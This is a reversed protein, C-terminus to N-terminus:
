YEQRKQKYRARLNEQNRRTQWGKTHVSAIKMAGTRKYSLFVVSLTTPCAFLDSSIVFLHLKTDLIKGGRRPPLTSSIKIGFIPRSAHTSCPFYPLPCYRTGRALLICSDFVLTSLGCLSSQGDQVCACPRGVRLCLSRYLEDSTSFLSVQFMYICLPSFVLRSVSQHVCAVLRACVCANRGHQTGIVLM